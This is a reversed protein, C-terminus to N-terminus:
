VVTLQLKIATNIQCNFKVTVVSVQIGVSLNIEVNNLIKEDNCNQCLM